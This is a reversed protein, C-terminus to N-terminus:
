RGRFKKEARQWDGSLAEWDGALAAADDEYGGCSVEFRPPRLATSVPPGWLGGLSAVGAFFAGALADRRESRRQLAERVRPTLSSLPNKM